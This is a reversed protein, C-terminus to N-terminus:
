SNRGEGQQMARILSVIKEAITDFFITNDLDVLHLTAVPTAEWMNRSDQEDVQETDFVDLFWQEADNDRVVVWRDPWVHMRPGSEADGHEEYNMNLAIDLCWGSRESASAQVWDKPLNLLRRVEIALLSYFSRGTEHASMSM